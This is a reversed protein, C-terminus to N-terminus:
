HWHPWLSLIHLETYLNWNKCSSHIEKRQRFFIIGMSADRLCVETWCLIDSNRGLKGALLKGFHDKERPSFFGKGTFLAVHREYHTIFVLVLLLAYIYMYTIVSVVLLFPSWRNDSSASHPLLHPDNTIEIYWTTIPLVYSLM